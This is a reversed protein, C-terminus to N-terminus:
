WVANRICNINTKSINIIMSGKPIQYILLLITIGSSLNNAAFQTNWNESKDSIVTVEVKNPLCIISENSKSIEKHNKCIKDKCDAYIMKVKGNKIQVTNCIDGNDNYVNYVCDKNLDLVAIQASNQEVLVRDGSKSFLNM